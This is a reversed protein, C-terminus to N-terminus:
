HNKHPSHSPSSLERPECGGRTIYVLRNSPIAISVNEGGKGRRKRKEEKRRETGERRTTRRKEMLSMGSYSVSLLMEWIGSINRPPM